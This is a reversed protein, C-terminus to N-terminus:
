FEERKFRWFAIVTFVVIQLGIAILPVVSLIPEGISMQAAIEEIRKPLWLELGPLYIRGFDAILDQFGLLLVPIGIVAGRGKFFTGLMLTLTLWFLLHFGHLFLGKLLSGVPIIEMGFSVLVFEYVVGQLLVLIGFIWLMNVVLKSLIFAERSLPSSLVWEATGSKKEEVIAGQTLIMVGFPTMGGLLAFFLGLSEFSNRLPISSEQGSLYLIMMHLGNLILMWIVSQTLWRRTNWWIGNEKRVMNPLGSLWGSERVPQFENDSAM